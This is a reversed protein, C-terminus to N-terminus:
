HLDHHCGCELVAVEKNAGLGLYQDFAEVLAAPGVTVFGYSHPTRRVDQANALALTFKKFAGQRKPDNMLFHVLSWGWTYDEYGGETLASRLTVWDGRAIDDQIEALRGEQVLGVTLEKKDADWHAGGYYEALSEGPWHPYSFREDILQQLYHNAEHFLVQETYTPDLRDYYSNLEYGGGFKFYAVAGREAGSTRYYEKQNSYFCVPLKGAKSPKIHWDKAFIQYYAELRDRYEAFVHEPVTYEFSFDKSEARRRDKWERHALNEAVDAKTAASRKALTEDRRKKPIWAGEFPVLGKAYKQREEDSKPEPDAEGEILILHVLADPVFVKGSPFQVQVGGEARELRQDQFVRGDALVLVDAAASAALALAALVCALAARM